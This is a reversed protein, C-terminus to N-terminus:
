LCSDTISSNVSESVPGISSPKSSPFTACPSAAVTRCSKFLLLDIEIRLKLQRIHRTHYTRITSIQAAEKILLIPLSEIIEHIIIPHLMSGLQKACGGIRYQFHSFFRSEIRNRSKAPSKDSCVFTRRIFITRLHLYLSILLNSVIVRRMKRLSEKSLRPTLSSKTRKFRHKKGLSVLPKPFLQIKTASNELNPKSIMQKQHVCILFPQSVRLPCAM